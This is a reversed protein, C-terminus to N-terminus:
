GGEVLLRAGAVIPGLLQGRDAVPQPHTAAEDPNGPLRSGDQGAECVHQRQGPLSLRRRGLAHIPGGHGQDGSRWPPDNESCRTYSPRVLKALPPGVFGDQTPESLSVSGPAKGAYLQGLRYVIAEALGLVPM